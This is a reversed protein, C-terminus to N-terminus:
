ADNWGSLSRQAPYRLRDSLLSAGSASAESAQSYDLYNDAGKMERNGEEQDGQIGLSHVTSGPYRRRSKRESKIAPMVTPSTASGMAMAKPMAEPAVGSAPM